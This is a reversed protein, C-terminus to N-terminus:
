HGDIVGRGRVYDAQIQSLYDSPSIQGGLVESWLSMINTAMDATAWDPFPMSVKSTTRFGAIEDAMISGKKVLKTENPITSAPLQGGYKLVLKQAAPSIMFTLYQAALAHNPSKAPIAWAQGGTAIGVPQHATTASPLPFMGINKGMPGAVKPTEWNGEMYFLAKGTTFLGEAGSIDLGTFNEPFYGAKAWGALTNVAKLDAPANWSGHGVGDVLNRLGNLKPLKDAWLIYWMFEDLNADGGQDGFAIPTIGAAKALRLDNTFAAFTKPVSQHIQKLLAKNYMVGVWTAETSVGWLKGTGLQTPTQRGDVSLLAPSQLKTWHYKKAYGDLPTLLNDKVYQGMATYGQNVQFVSPVNGTTLELIGTKAEQDYSQSKVVVHVNPHSKEFLAGMKEYMTVYAPNGNADDEVVLTQKAAATHKATTTHKATGAAAVGSAVLGAGMLASLLLANRCRDKM